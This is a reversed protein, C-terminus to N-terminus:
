GLSLFFSVQLHCFVFFVSFEVKSYVISSYSKSTASNEEEKLFSCHPENQKKWQKGM